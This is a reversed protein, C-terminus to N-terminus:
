RSIILKTTTEKSGVTTKVMYLGPSQTGLSNNEEPNTIERSEVRRGSADFIDIRSGADPMKSFRVTINDVCPNPYVDIKYDDSFGDDLGTTLNTNVTVVKSVSQSLNGAADKTWAYLTKTGPASAVYVSPAELLWQSSSDSPAIGSEEVLYGTVENDDTATFSAIPIELSNVDSPVTFESIVPVTDEMVRLYSGGTSSLEYAGLDPASGSYKLGVNTGRNLLDSSSALKLFKLTPLSGDSHRPGDVGTNDLSQFDSSSVSYSTNVAGNQQFSNYTVTSGTRFYASM